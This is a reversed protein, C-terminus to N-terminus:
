LDNIKQKFQELTLNKIEHEWLRLVKFGQGKLESTRKNDKHRQKNQKNNLEKMCKECGHWYCGDAECIIVNNIGEQKPIYFDCQYSHKIEVMNRHQIYEIKLEDLLNRIKVEISSDKLPFVQKARNNILRKHVEKAKEKGYIEEVTKNKRYKSLKKRARNSRNSISRITYGNKLLCKRIPYESCGLEKGIDRLSKEENWHKYNLLKPNLKLGKGLNGKGWDEGKRQKKEIINLLNQKRRKTYSYKPRTTIDWEILKNLIFRWSVNYIKGIELSSYEKKTYLYIINEKEEQAFIIKGKEKIM